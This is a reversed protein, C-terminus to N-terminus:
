YRDLIQQEQVIALKLIKTMGLGPMEIYALYLGSGVPLDAENTLNWREFQEVSNKRIERVQVGALSFIRIIAEQPLHTFTVFRNYKNLEETNVGYYPNPFVNVAEVDTKATAPDYRVSPGAFAFRDAAANVHNATILFEDGAAWPAEARRSCTMVWMMPTVSGSLNDLALEPDPTTTYPRDFIFAFERIVTNDEDATGPWYRGDVKGGVV